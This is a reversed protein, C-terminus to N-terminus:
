TANFILSLPKYKTKYIIANIKIVAKDYICVYSDFYKDIKHGM